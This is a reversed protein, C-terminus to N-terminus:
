QLNRDIPNCTQGFLTKYTTDPISCYTIAQWLLSKPSRSLLQHDPWNILKLHTVKSLHSGAYDFRIVSGSQNSRYVWRQQGSAVMVKWGPVLALTCFVGPESLGLCGDPWTQPQVELIRLMSHPLKTREAADQFVANAVSTPLQSLNPNPELRLTKGQTDTRYVWVQQGDSLFVRWGEVLVQACIEGSQALGLCSDPWTQLSSGTITLKEPTIGVQQALDQRVAEAVSQPLPDSPTPSTQALVHPQIPKLNFSVLTLQPNQVQTKFLSTTLVKDTSPKSTTCTKGAQCGLNPSHNSLMQRHSFEAATTSFKQQVLNSHSAVEVSTSLFAEAKEIVTKWVTPYVQLILVGTLMLALILPRPQKEDADQMKKPLRYHYSLKMLLM